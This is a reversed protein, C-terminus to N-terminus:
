WFMGLDWLVVGVDVTIVLSMGLDWLVVGVDVTIVLSM